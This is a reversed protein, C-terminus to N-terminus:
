VVFTVGEMRVVEYVRVNRPARAMNFRNQQGRHWPRNVAHSVTQEIRPKRIQRSM